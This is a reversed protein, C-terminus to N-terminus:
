VGGSVSSVFHTLHTKFSLILAAAKRKVDTLLMNGHNSSEDM